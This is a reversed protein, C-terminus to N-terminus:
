ASSRNQVLLLHSIIAGPAFAPLAEDWPLGTRVHLVPVFYIAVLSLALAAYYAPLIRLSRRFFFSRMGGSIHTTGRRALPIMLCYGSLVIFVGVAVHGFSLWRTSTAVIAPLVRENWRLGLQRYVHYLVVFLAAIGRLGDLFELRVRGSGPVAPPPASQHANDNSM